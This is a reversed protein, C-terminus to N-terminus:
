RFSGATRCSFLEFTSSQTGRRSHKIYRRKPSDVVFRDFGLLPGLVFMLFIFLLLLNILVMETRVQLKVTLPFKAAAISEILRCVAGRMLEGGRGRYLRSDEVKVVLNTTNSITESCLKDLVNNNENRSLFGIAKVIAAVGLIAGHRVQLDKHLCLDFLSSLVHELIYDIDIKSMLYLSQSALVRIDLDWHRLKVQWM